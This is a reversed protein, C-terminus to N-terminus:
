ADPRPPDGATRGRRRASRTRMAQAVVRRVGLLREATALYGRISNDLDQTEVLSLGPPRGEDLRQAEMRYAAILMDVTEIAALIERPEISAPGTMPGPNAM